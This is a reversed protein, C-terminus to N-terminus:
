VILRFHDFVFYLDIKACLPYFWVFRTYDDVFLVFYKYGNSSVLPALGWIYTYILELVERVSM